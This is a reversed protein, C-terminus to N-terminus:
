HTLRMLMHKISNRTSKQVIFFVFFFQEAVGDSDNDALSICLGLGTRTFEVSVLSLLQRPIKLNSSSNASAAFLLDYSLLVDVTGRGVPVQHISSFMESVFEFESQLLERDLSAIQTSPTPSRFYKSLAHYLDMSLCSTRLEEPIMSAEPFPKFIGFDTEVPHIGSLIKCRLNTLIPDDQLVSTPIALAVNFVLRAHLLLKHSFLSFKQKSRTKTVSSSPLSSPKGSPLNASVFFVCSVFCSWDFDLPSCHVLPLSLIMNQSALQGLRQQPM